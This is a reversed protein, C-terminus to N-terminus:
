VLLYSNMNTVTMLMNVCPLQFKVPFITKYTKLVFLKGNNTKFFATKVSWTWCTELASLLFVTATLFRVVCLDLPWCQPPSSNSQKNQTIWKRKGRPRAKVRQTHPTRKKSPVNHSNRICILSLFVSSYILQSIMIFACRNRSLKYVSFYSTTQKWHVQWWQAKLLYLGYRTLVINVCKCGKKVSATDLKLSDELLTYVKRGSM